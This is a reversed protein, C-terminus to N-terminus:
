YWKDGLGKGLVCNEEVKWWVWLMVRMGMGEVSERMEGGGGYDREEFGM